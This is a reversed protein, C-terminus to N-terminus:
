GFSGGGEESALMRILDQFYTNRGSPWSLAYLVAGGKIYLDALICKKRKKKKWKFYITSIIVRYLTCM